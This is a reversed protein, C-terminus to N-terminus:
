GVTKPATYDVTFRSSVSSKIYMKYIDPAGAKLAKSDFRDSTISKNRITYEDICMTDLQELELITKMQTALEKKKDELEKVQGCLKTYQRALKKMEKQTITMAM